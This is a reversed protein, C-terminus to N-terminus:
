TATVLNKKKYVDLLLEIDEFTGKNMKKDNRFKEALEILKPFNYIKELNSINYTWGDDFHNGEKYFAIFKAFKDGDESLLSVVYDSVIEKNEGDFTNWNTSWYTLTINWDRPKKMISFIDRKEDIFYHKLRASLKIKLEELNISEFINYYGSGSDKRCRYIIEVAFMIGPTNEVVEGLLTQIKDKETDNVLSLLLLMASDYESILGNSNHSFIGSNNSISRVIGDRVNEPIKNLFIKRLKDTLDQIKKNERLDIFTQTVGDEINDSEKWALILSDIYTDSLEVEPVKLLFYKLFSDTFIRKSGRDDNGFSLNIRSTNPFLKGLINKYIESEIPTTNTKLFEEIHKEIQEKKKDGSSSLSNLPNSWIEDKSRQNVYFWWKDYIDDYLEPLFVKISELMFFDSINVEGVVAPFSTEISNLYRKVDRFTCIIRTLENLYIYSFDSDFQEIEASSIKNAFYFKKLFEDIWSLRYKIIEADIIKNGDWVGKVYIRDGRSINKRTYTIAEVKIENEFDNDEESVFFEDNDIRNIIGEISIDKGKEFSNLESIKHRPIQHDSMLIFKDIRLQEIKPLVIPKQIIKSLYDKGNFGTNHSMCKRVVDYDFSLVFITNNFESNLRILKFILMMEDLQLRDIDDVFIVIKRGTQKIYNEIADKLQSIDYKKNNFSFVIDFIGLSIKTQALNGKSILNTYKDFTKHLNTFLFNKELSSEIQKYLARTMAEEDKYNWPNYDVIIFKDNKELRNKVLNIVSTKGEGWKGYLGFIFSEPFSINSIEKYLGDCFDSRGLRDDNFNNIPRDVLFDSNSLVDEHKNTKWYYSTLLWAFVIGINTTLFAIVSKSMQITRINTVFLSLTTSFFLILAVSDVFLFPFRRNKYVNKYRNWFEQSKRWNLSLVVLIISTLGIMYGKSESLLLSRSLNSNIVLPLICLVFFLAVLFSRAICYLDNLITSYAKMLM